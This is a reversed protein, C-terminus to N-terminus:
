VVKYVLVNKNTCETDVRNIYWQMDKYPLLRIIEQAYNFNGLNRELEARMMIDLDDEENLLNKLKFVNDYWLKKDEVNGYLPRYLRVRDNFRWLLRVRLYYEQQFNQYYGNEVCEMLEYLNLPIASIARSQEEDPNESWAIESVVNEDNLWVIEKCTPCRTIEPYDDFHATKRLGDSYWRAPLSDEVFEM